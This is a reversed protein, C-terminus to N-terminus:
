DTGTSNKKKKSPKTFMRLSDKASFFKTKIKRMALNFAIGWAMFNGPHCDIDESCSLFNYDNFSEAPIIKFGLLPLPLLIAVLLTLLMTAPIFIFSMMFNQGLAEKSRFNQFVMLIMLGVIFYNEMIKFAMFGGLVIFFGIFFLIRPVDFILNGTRLLFFPAFSGVFILPINMYLAFMLDNIIGPDWALVQETFLWTAGYLAMMIYEVPLYHSLLASLHPAKLQSLIELSKMVIIAVM